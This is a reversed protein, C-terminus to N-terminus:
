DKYGCNGNARVTIGTGEVMVYECGGVWVIQARSSDGAGAICGLIFWAVFLWKM